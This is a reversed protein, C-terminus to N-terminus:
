SRTRRKLFTFLEFLVIALEGRPDNTGRQKGAFSWAQCPFGACLLDISEWNIKWERWKTVDGLQITNPWNHQTVKIAHKDIESAFYSAVNIGARELAIQGCSIGDFLSLVNIGKNYIM